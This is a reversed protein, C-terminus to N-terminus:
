ASIEAETSPLPEARIRSIRRGRMHVIQLRWGKVQAADGPQGVQGLLNMMLGALTQYENRTEDPLADLRLLEKLQDTSIRGDLLWSGDDHHVARQRSNEADLDVAIAQMLNNLTALGQLHGYEDVVLAVRTDAERFGNILERGSITEPVFLAEDLLTALTSEPESLMTCALTKITIVGVVNETSGDTVPFASHPSRTVHQLAQAVTASADLLVLEARPTMYTTIRRDDLGFIHRVMEYEGPKIAGAQEGEVLMAHIEEETIAPGSRERLGLLGLLAETSTSLLWVFPATARALWLMPRAVTMTIATPAIQAIRKPLLEGVVITLYTIVVVVTVTGAVAATSAPVGMQELWAALPGALAAAGVIGNLIGISTIGIQVTSLFRSPDQKLDLAISARSDGASAAAHLRAKRAAVLALESMAFVGNLLVLILLFIIEM